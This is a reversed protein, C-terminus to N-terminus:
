PSPARGNAIRAMPSPRVEALTTIPLENSATPFVLTRIEALASPISASMAKAGKIKRNPTVPAARLLTARIVADSPHEHIIRSLFYGRETSRAANQLTSTHQKTSPPTTTAPSDTYYSFNKNG